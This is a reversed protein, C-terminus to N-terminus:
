HNIYKTRFVKEGLNSGLIHTFSITITRVRKNPLPLHHVSYNSGPVHSTLKQIDRQRNSTIPFTRHRLPVVHGKCASFRKRSGRGRYECYRSYSHQSFGKEEQTGLYGRGTQAVLVPCPPGIIAATYSLKPHLTTVLPSLPM